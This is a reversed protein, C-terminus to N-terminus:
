QGTWRKAATSYFEGFYGLSFGDGNTSYRFNQTENTGLGLSNLQGPLYGNRERFQDIKSIIIRASAWATKMERTARVARHQEWLLSPVYMGVMFVVLARIQMRTRGTM